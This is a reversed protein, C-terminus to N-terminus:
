ILFKEWIKIEVCKPRVKIKLWFSQDDSNKKNPVKEPDVATSEPSSQNENQQSKSTQVESEILLKDYSEDLSM